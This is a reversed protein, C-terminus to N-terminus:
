LMATLKIDRGLALVVDTACPRPPELRLIKLAHHLVHKIEHGVGVGPAPSDPIAVRLAVPEIVELVLGLPRVDRIAGLDGIGPRLPIGQVLQLKLGSRERGTEVLVILFEVADLPSERFDRIRLSGIELQALRPLILNLRDPLHLRVLEHLLHGDRLVHHALAAGIPRAHPHSVTGVRPAAPGGGHLKDGTLRVEGPIAVAQREALDHIM